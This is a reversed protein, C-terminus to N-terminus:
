RPATTAERVAQNVLWLAVHEGAPGGFTLPKRGFHIGDARLPHGEFEEICNGRPCVWGGLDIRGVGSVERAVDDNLRNMCDIQRRADDALDRGVPYALTAFQVVAGSEVAHRVVPVMAGRYWRRYAADCAALWEGGLKFREFGAANGYVITIIDPRLRDIADLWVPGCPPNMITEEYGSAKVIRFEEIDATIPCGNVAAKMVHARFQDPIAEAATGISDAVSDGMILVSPQGDDDPAIKTVAVPGRSSGLLGATGAASGAGATSV